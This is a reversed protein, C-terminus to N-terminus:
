YRRDKSSYYLMGINLNQLCQTADAFQRSFRSFDPPDRAAGEEPTQESSTRCGSRSQPGPSNEKRPEWINIEVGYQQVEAVRLAAVIGYKCM